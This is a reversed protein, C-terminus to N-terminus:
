VIKRGFLHLKQSYPDTTGYSFRWKDNNHVIDVTEQKELETYLLTLFSNFPSGLFHHPEAKIGKTNMIVIREPNSHSSYLYSVKSGTWGELHRGLRDSKVSLKNEIAKNNKDDKIFEIAEKFYEKIERAFISTQIFVLFLLITQKM